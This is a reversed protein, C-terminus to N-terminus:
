PRVRQFCVFRSELTSGDSPRVDAARDSVRRDFLWVVSCVSLDLFLLGHCDLLCFMVHEVIMKEHTHTHKHTDIVSTKIICSSSSVLFSGTANPPALWNM